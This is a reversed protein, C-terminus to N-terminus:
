IFISDDTDQGDLWVRAWIEMIVLRWIHHGLEYRNSCHMNLLEIAALPNVIGRQKFSDSSFLKM